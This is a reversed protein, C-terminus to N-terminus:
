RWDVQFLCHKGPVGRIDVERWPRVADAQALRSHTVESILIEGADTFKQIRAALNVTSGVVTYNSRERAGIFGAAAPGSHIGVGCDLPHQGRAARAANLGALRRKIEVAARVCRDAHDPQAFPASFVAMVEDGVFKDLMGDNEFIAGAIFDYYENLMEAVQEPTLESSAATFGRLDCFLVSVERVQTRVIREPDAKLAAMVPQSVCQGFLREVRQNREALRRANAGTILWQGLVGTSIALLMGAVPAAVPLVAGRLFLVHAAILWGGILLLIIGGMGAALRLVTRRGVRFERPWWALMGAILTVLASLLARRSPARPKEPLSRGDLIQALVNAHYYVGPNTRSFQDSRPGSDGAQSPHPSRPLPMPFQDALERGEGILVLAGDIVARDFSGTVVQDFSLTRWGQNQVAQYDVLSRADLRRNGLTAGGPDYQIAADPQEVLRAVLAMALPFHAFRSLSGDAEPMDLYLFEPVRRLVGDDDPYVTIPGEAACADTFLKLARVPRGQTHAVALVCNAAGLAEALKLDIASELSDPAPPGSRGQLAIDLGIVVAGADALHNIAAPLHERLNFIREDRTLSRRSNEDIEVIVINQRPTQPGRLVFRADISLDEFRPVARSDALAAALGALTGSALLAILISQRRSLVPRFDLALTSRGPSASTSEPKM